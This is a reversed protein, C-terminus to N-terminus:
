GSMWREQMAEAFPEAAAFGIIIAFFWFFIATKDANFNLAGAQELMAPNELPSLDPTIAECDRYRFGTKQIEAM